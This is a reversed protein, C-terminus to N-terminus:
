TVPWLGESKWQALFMIWTLAL